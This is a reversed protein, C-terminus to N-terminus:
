ILETHLDKNNNNMSNNM